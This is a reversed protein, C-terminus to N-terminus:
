GALAAAEETAADAADAANARAELATAVASCRWPM